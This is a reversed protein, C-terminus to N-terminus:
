KEEKVSAIYPLERYEENYDLGCGVLYDETIAQMGYTLLPIDYHHGYGDRKIMVVNKVDYVKMKKLKKNIVHLTNGTDYIDDIVLVYKDKLDKIGLFDLKIEGNPLKKNDVYSNASIYNVKFMNYKGLNKKSFLFDSFYKGGKMVVLVIVEEPNHPNDNREMYHSSIENAVFMMWSKVKQEDYLVEKIFDPKNM